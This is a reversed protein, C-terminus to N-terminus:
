QFAQSVSAYLQFGARQSLWRASPKELDACHPVRTPAPLQLEAAADLGAAAPQHPVRSSAAEPVASCVPFARSGM